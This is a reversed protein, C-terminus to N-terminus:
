KVLQKTECISLQLFFFFIGFLVTKKGPRKVRKATGDTGRAGYKRKKRYKPTGYDWDLAADVDKKSLNLVTYRVAIEYVYM